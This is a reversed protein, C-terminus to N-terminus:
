ILFFYAFLQRKSTENVYKLHELVSVTKPIITVTLCSEGTPFFRLLM